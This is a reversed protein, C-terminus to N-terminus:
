KPLPLHGCLHSFAVNDEMKGEKQYLVARFGSDLHISPYLSVTRNKEKSCVGTLLVGIGCADVHMLEQHVCQSVVGPVFSVVCVVYSEFQHRLIGSKNVYKDIFYM